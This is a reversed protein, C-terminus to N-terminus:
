SVSWLSLTGWGYLGRSDEEGRMWFFVIDGAKMENRYRTAYWTDSKGVRFERRLDYRDPVSQFIFANM